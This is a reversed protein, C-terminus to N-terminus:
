PFVTGAAATPSLSGPLPTTLYPSRLGCNSVTKRVGETLALEGAFADASKCGAQLTDAAGTLVCLAGMSVRLSLDVV